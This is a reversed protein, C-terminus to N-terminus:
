TGGNVLYDRRNIQGATSLEDELRQKGIMVRAALESDKIATKLRKASEYQSKDWGNGFHKSDAM